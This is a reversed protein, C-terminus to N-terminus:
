AHDDKKFIQDTIISAFGFIVVFQFGQFHNIVGLIILIVLFVILKKLSM